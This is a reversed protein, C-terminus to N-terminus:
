PWHMSPSGPWATTPMRGSACQRRINRRLLLFASLLHPVSGDWLSMDTGITHLLLLPPFDLVGEIKWYLRCGERMAFLM